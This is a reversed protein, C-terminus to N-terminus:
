GPPNFASKLILRAAPHAVLQFAFTSGFITGTSDRKYQLPTLILDTSPSLLFTFGPMQPALVLGKPALIVRCLM